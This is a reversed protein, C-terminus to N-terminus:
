RQHHKPSLAPQPPSRCLLCSSQGKLRSKNWGYGHSIGCYRSCTSLCKVWSEEMHPHPVKRWLSKSCQNLQKGM